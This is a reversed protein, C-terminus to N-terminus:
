KLKKLRDEIEEESLLKTRYEAVFIKEELEGLAYHVEEEDKGKCIILGIPDREWSRKDNERFYTLYKNMQGVHADRFKETKLDVIVLCQLDRHYFLMDIKHYQWAIQIKMQQGGFFFGHGLELLTERINDILAKELEKETHEAELQLFDWHYADKFIEEPAPLQKPITLNIHGVKRAKEYEKQHIRRELERRSWGNKITQVEYFKREESNEIRILLFFHSWSLQAVLPQVIPYTRSFQVIAFM